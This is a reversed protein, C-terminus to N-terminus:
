VRGVIAIGAREAAELVSPRDILIVRGAGLAICGGGAAALREITQAGITPVDTRMDHGPRATKLLTWGRARCLAGAREIM